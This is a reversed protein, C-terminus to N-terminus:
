RWSDRLLVRRRELADEFATPATAADPLEIPYLPCDCHHPIRAKSKWDTPPNVDPSTCTCAARVVARLLLLETKPDM